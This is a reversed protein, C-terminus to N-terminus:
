CLASAYRRSGPGLATALGTLLAGARRATIATGRLPLGEHSHRRRAVCEDLQSGSGLSEVHEGLCRTVQSIQCYRDYM